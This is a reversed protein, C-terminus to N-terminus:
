IQATATNGYGRWLRFRNQRSYMTQVRTSITSFILTASLRATSSRTPQQRTPRVSSLWVRARGDYTQHSAAGTALETGDLDRGSRTIVNIVGFMANGGYIASGPGRVIEIREVLDIDLPITEGMMVSDYFSDNVREGDIMFLIRNNMDGPPSFGRLGIYQYTRDNTLYFSRVSRLADALTRWGYRRVEEATVVTVDAPADTAKQAYKSAGTVEQQMLGELSLQSMDAAYGHVSNILSLGLM